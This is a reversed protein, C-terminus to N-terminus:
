EPVDVLRDFALGSSAEGRGTSRRVGLWVVTRGGHWRTRQFSQEVVEGARSVEEEFLVYPRAGGPGDLGERLLATRPRVRDPPVPGGDIIRPLAARQLQIERIDGPVHVPLFPIWQEPVSSMVEYRVAAVRPLPEPPAAGAVRRLYGFTERGAESGPKSAGSPLAVRREVGWVMNAMEDRVLMVQEIPDGEQIKPVTPLVMLSLDAAEGGDGLVNVTFMSWRQWDDDPGAGAPEIWFREGFVNTVALGTVRAISGTSLAIPLLFWDNAYVLGFELFLLKAIDTTAASIDGFNTRRDEFAWWRTNPMGEFTVPTPILTRPEAAAPPPTPPEGDSSLGPDGRDIDFAWWDLHGGHYEEAAYVKEGEGEPASCSFRYELRNADWADEEAVPPPALLRQFWAVFRTGRSDLEAHEAPNIASIGDYARRGPAGTLYEYLRGGDMRRGAVAAFVQWVEPHAARDADDALTPDPAEIPYEDVFAQRYDGIGPAALMKLWQRGMVLRLDLAIPRANMRLPIPRREVRAELPLSEDDFRQPPHDRPRYHTLETRDFALKALFPSGADDGEFEGLQWQRTLMWLADRVEAKLARDFARTRPRGELRNYVTIAPLLREVLAEDLNTVVFHRDEAM